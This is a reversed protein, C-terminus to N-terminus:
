AEQAVRRYLETATPMVTGLLSWQDAVDRALEEPTVFLLDLEFPMEALVGMVDLGRMRRPLDTRLVVVMDLDSGKKVQGKAYSGFVYIADPNHFAIIRDVVRQVDAEVIV